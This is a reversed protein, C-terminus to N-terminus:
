VSNAPHAMGIIRAFFPSIETGLEQIEKSKAQITENSYDHNIVRWSMGEIKISQTHWNTTRRNRQHVVGHIVSIRFDNLTFIRKRIAGIRSRDLEPITDDKEVHRKVYDLQKALMRPLGEDPMIGSKIHHWIVLHALMLEIGAWAITINGLTSLVVNIHAWSADSQM